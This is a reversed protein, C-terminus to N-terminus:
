FPTLCRILTKMYINFFKATVAPNCTILISQDHFNPVQEPLLNDVDIETGALFKVLPNYVDAPNITIYFSPLGRDCMLGHIENQMNARAYASGPMNSTIVQVEEMLRLVSKEDENNASVIDERALQEFNIQNTVRFIV